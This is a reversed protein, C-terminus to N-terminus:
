IRNGIDDPIDEPIDDVSVIVGVHSDSQKLKQRTNRSRNSQPKRNTNQKTSSKAESPKSTQNTNGQTSGEQNTKKTDAPLKKSRQNKAQTAEKQSNIKQEQKVRGQASQSKVKEQSVTNPRTSSGDRRTSGTQKSNPPKSGTQKQTKKSSKLKQGSSAPKRRQQDTQKRTGKGQRKGKTVTKGENRPTRNQETESSKFSSVLGSILKILGSKQSEKVQNKPKPSSILDMHESGIVARESDKHELMRKVKSNSIRSDHPIEFSMMEKDTNTGKYDIAKVSIECDVINDEPIIVIRCGFKIRLRDLEPNMENVLYIATDTPVRCQVEAVMPKYASEEIKRLVQITSAEVTPILGTGHCKDCLHHNTDVLSTRLRQRSMELLGFESIEGVLTKARDVRLKNKLEKVVMNRNSKDSMDILDAVILGGHDRLRLQNALMEVAELNTQLATEEMYTGKTAKGSNVDVSLLAETSDFILYGGYPLDIKRSFVDNVQDQIKYKIFLPVKGRHLKLKVEKDPMVQKIYRETREYIEEDDVILEEVDKGLHDRLTQTILDDQKYILFPGKTSNAAQEILDWLRTLFDLDWQLEQITKGASETRAILAHKPDLDLQKLNERIDARRAAEITRSIGGSKQNNPKLVFYNGPLSIITTLTAGKQISGEGREDKDVQVIVEMGEQLSPIPKANGSNQEDKSSNYFEESIQKFPLFGQKGRSYSVFCAELSHEIKTIVGKYINGVKTIAESPGIYLNFLTKGNIIAVRLEEAYTGNILIRKM